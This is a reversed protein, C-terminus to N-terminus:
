EVVYLGYRVGPVRRLAELRALRDAAALLETSPSDVLVAGALHTALVGVEAERGDRVLIEAVEATIADAERREADSLPDVVRLLRSPRGDVEPAPETVAENRIVVHADVAAPCVRHSGFKYALAAGVCIQRGAADLRNGVGSMMTEASLPSGAFDLRVVDGPETISEVAATLERVPRVVAEGRDDSADVVDRTHGGVGLALVVLWAGAVARRVVDRRWGVHQQVARWAVLVVTGWTLWGLPQFWDVLWWGLPRTISVVAVFASVWVVAMMACLAREAAWGSRWAVAGAVALLVVAAGPLAGSEVTEVQLLFRGPIQPELPFSLSAVRGLMRLGDRAGVTPEDNSMSWRLLEGLNGPWHVVVDLVAPVFTLAVGGVGLTWRRVDLGQQWSRRVVIAVTAVFAPGLVVGAGVHSQFAFSAALAAVLLAYRDGCLACWCGVVVLVFPLDAVTVNWGYSLATSPLGWVLAVVAGGIAMVAATGRRQLLWLLAGLVIANFLITTLGLATADNGFVRYPIAFLEFMFPGPHSWGYRSYAGVLPSHASLVDRIRLEILALDGVNADDRVLAAVLVALLMWALAVAATIVAVTPRLIHESLRRRAPVDPPM